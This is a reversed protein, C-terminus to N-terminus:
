AEQIVSSIRISQNSNKTAKGNMGYSSTEPAAVDMVTKISKEVILLSHKILATNTDNIKQIQSAIDRLEERKQSFRRSQDEDVKKAEEIIEKLSMNPNGLNSSINRRQMLVKELETAQEILKTDVIKLNEINGSMLIERKDVVSKKIDSYLSIEKEITEEMQNIYQKM